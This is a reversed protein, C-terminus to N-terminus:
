FNHRCLISLGVVLHKILLACAYAELKFQMYLEAQTYKSVARYFTNVSALIYADLEFRVTSYYLM